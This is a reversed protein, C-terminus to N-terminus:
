RGGTAGGGEEGRRDGARGRGEKWKVRGSEGFRKRRGRVGVGSVKEGREVGEGKDEGGM